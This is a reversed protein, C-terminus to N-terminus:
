FDSPYLEALRVMKDKNFTSCSDNPRLCGDLELIDSPYLEALRVLKDKNFASFSDNTVENFRNNLERLVWDILTVKHALRRPRDPLKYADDMKPIAIRNRYFTSVEKFLSEWRDSRM